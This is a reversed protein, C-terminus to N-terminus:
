FLLYVFVHYLWVPLLYENIRKTLMHLSNYIILYCWIIFKLIEIKFFKKKIVCIFVPLMNLNTYFISM